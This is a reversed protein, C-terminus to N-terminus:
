NKEIIYVVINKEKKFYINVQFFLNCKTISYWKLLWKTPFIFEVVHNKLPYYLIFLIIEKM